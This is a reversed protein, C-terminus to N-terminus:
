DNNDWGFREIGELREVDKTDSTLVWEEGNIFITEEENEIDDCLASLICEIEADQQALLAKMKENNM